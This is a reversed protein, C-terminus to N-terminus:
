ARHSDKGRTTALRHGSRRRQGGSYRNALYWHDWGTSLRMTIRSRFDSLVQVPGFTMLAVEVRQMAMADTSLEEKFVRLGANLEDIPRGNMSGSTDLLLLCPCRPEPNAVLDPPAFPIQDTANM